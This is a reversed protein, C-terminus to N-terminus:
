VHMKNIRNPPHHPPSYITYLKLNEKGINRIEHRTGKPIVCAFGPGGKIVKKDDIIVQIEGSEVRFFQDNDEHIESAIFDKIPLNMLVVQMNSTTWLVERYYGNNMTKKEIDGYPVCSSNSKEQCKQGCFYEGHCQSCIYQPSNDGCEKCSIM